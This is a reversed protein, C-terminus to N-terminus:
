SAAGVPQAAARRRLEALLESLNDGITGLHDWLEAVDHQLKGIADGPPDGLPDADLGRVVLVQPSCVGTLRNRVVEASHRLAAKDDHDTVAASGALTDLLQDLPQANVTV